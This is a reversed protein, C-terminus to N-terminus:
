EKTLLLSAICNKLDIDNSYMLTVNMHRLALNAQTEVLPHNKVKEQKPVESSDLLILTLDDYILPNM